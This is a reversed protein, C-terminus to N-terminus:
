RTYKGTRAFADVIFIIFIGLFIYLIFEETINNTKEHQQEELLHLMYNIKEMLKSNNSLDNTSKGIGMNAYYPKNYMNTPTDYSKMYNSYKNEDTNNIGYTKETNNNETKHHISSDLYSQSSPTYERSISVPAMDKKVNISPPSIPKFDGMKNNENTNATTITNILQNVRSNRESNKQQVDDITSPQLLQNNSPNPVYDLNNNVDEDTPSHKLKITKRMTPIRKKPPEDNIWNSASSVLSSM